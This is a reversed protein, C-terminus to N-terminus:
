ACVECAGCVHCVYSPSPWAYENMTQGCVCKKKNAITGQFMSTAYDYSCPKFEVDNYNLPIRTRGDTVGVFPYDTGLIKYVTGPITLQLQVSGTPGIVDLPTEDTVFVFNGVQLQEFPIM